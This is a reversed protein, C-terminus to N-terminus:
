EPSPRAVTVRGASRRVVLVPAGAKRDGVGTHRRHCARDAGEGVLATAVRRDLDLTGGQGSAQRRCAPQVAGEGAVADGGEGPRAPSMEGNETSIATPPLVTTDANWSEPLTTHCSLAVPAGSVPNEPSPRM